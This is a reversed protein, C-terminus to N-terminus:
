VCFLKGQIDNNFDGCLYQKRLKYKMQKSINLGNISEEIEDYSKGKFIESWKSKHHKHNIKDSEHTENWKERYERYWSGIVEDTFIGDGKNLNKKVWEIWKEVSPLMANGNLAHRIMEKKLGRRRYAYPIKPPNGMRKQIDNELLKFYAKGDEGDKTMRWKERAEIVKPDSLTAKLKQRTRWDRYTSIAKVMSRAMAELVVNAQKKDLITFVNMGHISKFFSICDEVMWNAIRTKFRSNADHARLEYALRAVTKGITNADLKMKYMDITLNRSKSWCAAMLNRVDVQPLVLDNFTTMGLMQAFQPRSTPLHVQSQTFTSDKLNKLFWEMKKKAEEDKSDCKANEKLDNAEWLGECWDRKGTSPFKSMSSAHRSITMDDIVKIKEIQEVKVGYTIQTRFSNLMAVDPLIWGNFIPDSVKLRDDRKKNNNCKVWAKFVREVEDMPFTPNFLAVAELFADYIEEKMVVREIPYFVKYGWKPPIYDPIDKNEHLRAKTGASYDGCMGQNFGCAGNVKSKVFECQEKTLNDFDLVIAHAIADKPTTPAHPKICHGLQFMKFLNQPADSVLFFENGVKNKKTAHFPNRHTIEWKTPKHNFVVNSIEYYM